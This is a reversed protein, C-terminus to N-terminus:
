CLKGLAQLPDETEDRDEGRDEEDESSTDSLDYALYSMM